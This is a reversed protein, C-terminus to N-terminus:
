DVSGHLSRRAAVGVHVGEDLKLGRERSPLSALLGRLVVQALSKLGRERSPLSKRWAQLAYTVLM